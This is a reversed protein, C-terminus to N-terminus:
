LLLRKRLELIDENKIGAHNLYNEIGNHRNNIQEFVTRIYREHATAAIELNKVPFFGLSFIRMFNLAPKISPLLYDNTKLYDKIISEPKIGLAMQILACTVGTRDKGARCHILVPLQNESLLVEFLGPLLPQFADVMDIYVTNCIDMIINEVNKKFLFPRLKERTPEDFSLPLNIRDIEQLTKKYKKQEGLSRLDVITKINLSRIYDSDRMDLKDLDGSRYILGPKLIKGDISPQNGLDRFNKLTKM